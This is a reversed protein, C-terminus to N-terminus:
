QQTQFLLNQLVQAQPATPSLKLAERIHISAKAKDNKFELLLKALNFRAELSRPNQQVSKKFQELASDFKKTNSFAIGAQNHARAKDFYFNQPPKNIHNRFLKASIDFEKSAEIAKGLNGYLSALNYHAEPANFNIRIADKFKKEANTVDGMSKYALGMNQHVDYLGSNIQLLAKLTKLAEPYNEEMLYHISSAKGVSLKSPTKKFTDAWLSSPSAYTQNRKVVLSSFSLGVVLLLTIAIKNRNEKFFILYLIVASFLSLGFYPVYLNRESFLHTRPIVSNTPALTILFWLCSFSLIASKLYFKKITLFLVTALLVISVLLSGWMVQTKFDYEFSLNIPFLFLKLPLKLIDIQVLVLSLHIKKLIGGLAIFAYPSHFYALLALIPFLAYFVLRSRFAKWNAGKMFCFDYLLFLVPLIVAVEKSLVAIFFILISATYYIFSPIKSSSKKLGGLMFMLLSLFFFLASLGGPRGSIYTITETQIPHLGFLLATITAITLAAREGWETTNKITLTVIFFVLFVTCVHLLLNFLHYGFPNKQNWQYNLAFTLLSVQRYTIKELNLYYAPNDIELNLFIHREDDSQFPTNLGNAYILFLVGTLIIFFLPAKLRSQPPSVDEGSNPDKM